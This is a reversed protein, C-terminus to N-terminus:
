GDLDTPPPAVGLMIDVTLLDREAKDFWARALEEDRASM